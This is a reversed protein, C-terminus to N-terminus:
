SIYDKESYGRLALNNKSYFVIIEVIIKLIIRWKKKENKFM